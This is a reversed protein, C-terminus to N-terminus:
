IGLERRLTKVMARSRPGRRIGTIANHLTAKHFGHSSAWSNISQGQKLLEVRVERCFDTKKFDGCSVSMAVHYLDKATMIKRECIIM